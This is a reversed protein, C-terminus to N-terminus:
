LDFVKVSKMEEELLPHFEEMTGFSLLDNYIRMWKECHCMLEDHEEETM